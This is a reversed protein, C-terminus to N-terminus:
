QANAVEQQMAKWDRFVTAFAYAFRAEDAIFYEIDDDLYNGVFDGTQSVFEVFLGRENEPGMFGTSHPMNFDIGLEYALREIATGSIVINSM